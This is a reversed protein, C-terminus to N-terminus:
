RWVLRRLIARGNTVRQPQGEADQKAWLDAADTMHVASPTADFAKQRAEQDREAENEQREKTVRARVEDLDSTANRQCGCLLFGAALLAIITSKM